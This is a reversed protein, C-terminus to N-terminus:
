VMPVAFRMRKRGVLGRGPEKEQAGKQQQYSDGCGTIKFNPGAGTDVAVRGPM